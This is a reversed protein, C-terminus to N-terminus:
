KVSSLAPAEPPITPLYSASHLWVSPRGHHSDTQLGHMSDPLPFLPSPPTCLPAEQAPERPSGQQLDSIGAPTALVWANQTEKSGGVHLM